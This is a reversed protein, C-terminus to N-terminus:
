KDGILPTEKWAGGTFYTLKSGAPDGEKNKVDRFASGSFMKFSGGSRDCSKFSGNFVACPYYDEPPVIEWFGPVVIQMPDPYIPDTVYYSGTGSFWLLGDRGDTTAGFDRASGLNIGTASVNWVYNGRGDGRNPVHVTARAVEFGDSPYSPESGVNVVWDWDHKCVVLISPYDNALVGAASLTGTVDMSATVDDYTRVTIDLEVDCYVAEAYSGPLAYLTPPNSRSQSVHTQVQGVQTAM